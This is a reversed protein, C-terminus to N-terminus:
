KSLTPRRLTAFLSIFSPPVNALAALVLLAAVGGGGGGAGEGWGVVRLRRRSNKLSQTARSQSIIPNFLLM